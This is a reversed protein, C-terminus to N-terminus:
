IKPNLLILDDNRTSKSLKSRREKNQKNEILEINMMAKSYDTFRHKPMKKLYEDISQRIYRDSNM